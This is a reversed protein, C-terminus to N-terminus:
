FPFVEDGDTGTQPVPPASSSDEPQYGGGGGSQGKPPFVVDAAVIKVVSRKEGAETQWRDQRLRGSIEVHAGKHLWEACHEATVGFVSVEFYDPRDSWNGSQRDKERGNVAVSLSCVSTGGQTTRREPDRTLNGSVAVLNLAKSM